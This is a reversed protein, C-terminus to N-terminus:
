IYNSKEFSAMSEEYKKDFNEINEVSQPNLSLRRLSYMLENFERTHKVKTSRPNPWPIPVDRVIKSGETNDGGFPSLVIIRTGLFLAEEL